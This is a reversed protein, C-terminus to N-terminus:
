VTLEYIATLNHGMRALWAKGGSINETVWKQELSIFGLILTRSSPHPLNFFRTVYHLSLCV